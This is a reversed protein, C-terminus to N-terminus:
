MNSLRLNGMVRAYITATHRDLPKTSALDKSPKTCFTIQLYRNRKNKAILIQM